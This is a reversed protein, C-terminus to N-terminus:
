YPIGNTIQQFKDYLVTRRNEYAQDILGMMWVSADRETRDLVFRDRLNNITTAGKFCPLGSDLMLTVMQIIKEAYPRSALYAKVCLEQFWRFPQSDASGGMVLIMEHTLKFPANEFTIGGPAIDFCFGFDIHLIHGEADIMINGNHRDKFQLLYSIVSYAAMSQVFNNRARQFEISDENGHKTIFYDYLGNVAERGLMDRSISNPLVDIVGCGPATATVRYPFVYLDLGVTNFIERFTAILQLALVDQRCDDGVKFIASQRVEMIQEEEDELSDDTLSPEELHGPVAKSNTREIIFTAMFPAKAHSQLPRGSKRDIDVVRGNPNSPLYVGVDLKILAMEEDIKAKKEPKSKKIYPKLKGSISTVANFFTFEREYFDKDTGSFSNVMKELIDDLTPKLVDPVQSDEDKYANANMNWIIQHAFLQSIHATELIYRTVYGLADYRLAQVIQPVYFFTVGVGHSELARMAYQLVLANNKFAPLFYTAATIPVTPKWYILYKLQTAVDPALQDGLMLQLADPYECAEDPHALILRRVETDLGPYKLRLPLYVALGPNVKWALRALNAISSADRTKAFKMSSEGTRPDRLPNLWTTLRALESEVLMLLLHRKQAHLSAVPKQTQGGTAAPVNDREIAIILENFLKTEATLNTRNSGFSFRPPTAFWVFSADYLANRLKMELSSHMPTTALVHLGFLVISFRAERALPHNSGVSLAVLTEHLLRLIVKVLHVDGYRCAQFHGCLFQMVRIHPTFLSTATNAQKSHAAKNSPAYEMVHEFADTQNISHSFLGQRRRASWSWAKSVEMITRAELCPREAIIWAWLSIGLTIAQTSFVAFPVRVVRRLLSTEHADSEVIHGAASRLADKLEGIHVLKKHKGDDEFQQLVRELTLHSTQDEENKSQRGRKNFRNETLSETNRYLQRATYQTIYDSGADPVWGGYPVISSVQKNSDPLARGADIALSRGPSIDPFATSNDESDALYSQLLSRTESPAQSLALRLWLKANTHFARFTEERHRYSDSLLLTVNAQTTTYTYRPSYEDLDQDVCGQWLLSVLELMTYLPSRSCLLTPMANMLRDAQRTALRQVHRIRHCCGILLERLQEQAQVLLKGRSGTNLITRLFITMTHDAVANLPSAVDSEVLNSDAFYELMRSCIGFECRLSELLLVTSLFVQKPYSLKRLDPAQAPLAAALVKKPKSEDTEVKNGRLVSNLELDSEFHNTLRQSVIPPTARAIIRLVRAHEKAPTSGYHFGNLNLTFWANRFLVILGEDRPVFVRNDPFTLALALPDLISFFAPVLNKATELNRGRGGMVGMEIIEKLLEGVFLEHTESEKDLRMAMIRRAEAVAEIMVVADVGGTGTSYRSLFKVIREFEKEFGLVAGEAAKLVIVCDAAASVRGVKQTLLSLSLALIKEDGIKKATEFIASIVNIQTHHKQQESQPTETVNSAMTINDFAAWRDKPDRSTLSNARDRDNSPALANALSYLTTIVTDQSSVSLLDALRKVALTNTEPHSLGANSRLIFRKLPRLMSGAQEPLHMSLTTAANIVAISLNKDNMSTTDVFSSNLSRLFDEDIHGLMLSCKALISYISATVNRAQRQNEPESLKLFDNDGEIVDLQDNAIAAIRAATERMEPKMAYRKEAIEDWVNGCTAQEGQVMLSTCCADVLKMAICRMMMPGIACDASQFQCSLARLPSLSYEGQEQVADAAQEVALMLTDDLLKDMQNLLAPYTDETWFKTHESGARLFDACRLAWRLTEEADQGDAFAHYQTRSMLEELYTELVEAIYLQLSAFRTGISLIAKVLKYTVSEDTIDNPVPLPAVMYLLFQALMRRAQNEDEVILASDCLVSVTRLEDQRTPWKKPDSRLAGVVENPRPWQATDISQLREQWGSAAPLDVSPGHAGIKRLTGKSGTKASLLALKRLADNRVTKSICDM